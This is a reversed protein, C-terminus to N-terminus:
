MIKEWWLNYLYLFSLIVSFIYLYINNINRYLLFVIYISCHTYIVETKNYTTRFTFVLVCENSISISPTTRIHTFVGDYSLKKFFMFFFTASTVIVVLAQPKTKKIITGNCLPQKQDKICVNETFHIWFCPSKNTFYIQIM